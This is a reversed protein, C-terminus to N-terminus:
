GNRFVLKLHYNVYSQNDVSIDIHSAVTLMIVFWPNLKVPYVVSVIM